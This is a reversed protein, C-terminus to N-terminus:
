FNFPNLILLALSRLRIYVLVGDCLPSLTEPVVCVENRALNLAVAIFKVVFSVM